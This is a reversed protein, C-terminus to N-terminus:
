YVIVIPDRGWPCASVAGSVLFPSCLLNWLLVVEARVRGM